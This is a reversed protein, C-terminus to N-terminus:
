DIAKPAAPKNKSGRRRGRREPQEPQVGKKAESMWKPPRGRRKQGHAALREVLLIAQNLAALEGKLDAITKDLDM